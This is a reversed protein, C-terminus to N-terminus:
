AARLKKVWYVTAGAVAIPMAIINLLPIMSALMICGGFSYSTLTEKGLKKRLDVFTTQHNDAPYDSYQVAMCWAAWLATIILVILNLGPIFWSVAILLLVLLGRTFFYWIKTLERGLTRPVLSAWSESALTQGTIREEVKEALIGYFPAAILNTIINFSYGYLFLLSAAFIAWIVWGLFELWSPLWGMMLHLFDSFVSVLAATTLAFVIINALLPVIIFRKMGPALM